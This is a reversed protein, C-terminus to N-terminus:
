MAYNYRFNVVM